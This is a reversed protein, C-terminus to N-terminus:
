GYLLGATQSRTVVCSHATSRFCLLADDRSIKNNRYGKIYEFGHLVDEFCSIKRENIIKKIIEDTKRNRYIMRDAGEPAGWMAPLQPGLSPTSNSPRDFAGHVHRLQQCM